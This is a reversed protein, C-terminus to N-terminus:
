MLWAHDSIWNQEAKFNQAESLSETAWLFSTLLLFFNKTVMGAETGRGGGRGSDFGRRGGGAGAEVKTEVSDPGPADGLILWFICTYFYIGKM